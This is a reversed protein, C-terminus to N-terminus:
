FGFIISWQDRDGQPDFMAMNITLAFNVPIKDSETLHQHSSPFSSTTTDFILEFRHLTLSKATCESLKNTGLTVYSGFVIPYKACKVNPTPNLTKTVNEHIQASQM